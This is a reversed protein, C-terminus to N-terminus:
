LSYLYNQEFILLLKKKVWEVYCHSFKSLILETRLYAIIVIVSERNVRAIQRIYVYISIYIYFSHM